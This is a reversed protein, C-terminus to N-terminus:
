LRRLFQEPCNLFAKMLQVHELEDYTVPVPPLRDFSYITAGPYAMLIPSHTAIIFQGGETVADKIMAIFALQRTPSLAAEPEDMLYLGNPVLRAEFLQLYSEGHSRGDLDRGYRQEMANLSSRFPMKVLNQALISRDRYEEELEELRDEMEGRMAALRKAYSFFDESRLFFGRATKKQWALRLCKALARASALTPDTLISEAGVTIAGVAAAIGELLTSKGAGNEGVFITVDAELSLENLERLLPLEFPYGSAARIRDRDVRVARLHKM